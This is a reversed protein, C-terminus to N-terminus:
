AAWAPWCAPCCIPATAGSRRFGSGAFSGELVAVMAIAVPIFDPVSGMLPFRGFIGAAFFYCILFAVAYAIWLFVSGRRDTM